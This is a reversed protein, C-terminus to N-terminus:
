RWLLAFGDSTGPIPSCYNGGTVRLWQSGHVTFAYSSLPIPFSGGQDMSIASKIEKLEFLVLEDNEDGDAHYYAL